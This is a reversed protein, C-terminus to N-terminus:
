IIREFGVLETRWLSCQKVKASGWTMIGQRGKLGPVLAM